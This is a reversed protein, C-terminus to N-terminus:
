MFMTSTFYLECSLIARLTNKIKEVNKKKKKEDFSNTHINTQINANSGISMCAFSQISLFPFFFFVDFLCSECTMHNHTCLVACSIHTFHLDLNFKGRIFENRKTRQVHFCIWKKKKKTRRRHQM